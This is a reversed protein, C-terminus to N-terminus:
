FERKRQKTGVEVTREASLLTGEQRARIARRLIDASLTNDTGRGGLLIKVAADSPFLVTKVRLKGPISPTYNRANQQIGEVKGYTAVDARFTPWLLTITGDPRLALLVLFGSTKTSVQFTVEQGANVPKGDQAMGLSLRNLDTHNGGIQNWVADPRPEPRPVPTPTPPPPVPQPKPKPTLKPGPKPNPAPTPNPMPKPAPTPGPKPKPAAVSPSTPTPPPTPTITITGPAIVRGDSTTLTVAQAPGNAAETPVRARVVNPKWKVVEALAGGIQVTGPADGLVGQSDRISFEAGRAFTGGTSAASAPPAVPAPRPPRGIQVVTKCTYVPLLPGLYPLLGARRVQFTVKKTDWEKPVTVTLYQKQAPNLASLLTKAQANIVQADGKPKGFIAKVPDHPGEKAGSNAGIRAFVSAGHLFKGGFVLPGGPKTELSLPEAQIDARWVNEYTFALLNVAVILGIVGLVLAKANNIIMGALGTLTAPIPPCYLIGGATTPQCVESTATAVVTGVAGALNPLALVADPPPVSAVSPADVRVATLPIAQPAPEGRLRRLRTVAQLPVVRQSNEQSLEPPPVALRITPSQLLLDKPRALNLDCYLWDNGENTVVVELETARRLWGIRRGEEPLVAVQWKHYPQVLLVGPLETFRNKRAALGSGGATIQREVQAVFRYRGARSAPKQPLSFAILVDRTAGASVFLRVWRNNPGNQDAKGTTDAPLGAAPPLATLTHRAEQWYANGDSCRLRVTYANEQGTANTLRLVASGPGVANEAVPMQPRRGPVAEIEPQLLRLGSAANTHDPLVTSM